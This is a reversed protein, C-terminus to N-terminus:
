NDVTSSAKEAITSGGLTPKAFTLSVGKGGAFLALVSGHINGVVNTSRSKQQNCFQYTL